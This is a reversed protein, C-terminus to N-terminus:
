RGCIRRSTHTKSCSLASGQPAPFSSMVIPLMRAVDASAQELTKGPKLRAVGDYSFNGLHTKSRDFQFPILM